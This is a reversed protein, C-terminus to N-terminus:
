RKAPGVTGGPVYKAQFIVQRKDPRGKAVGDVWRAIRAIYDREPGEFHDLSPRRLAFVPDNDMYILSVHGPVQLERRALFSIVAACYDAQVVLLATPPTVRFLSDLCSELGEASDEFHPLHYNATAIGRAELFSLYSKLSPVPTPRRLLSGALMVIRRHGQKVLTDVASNIAPAMRTASCAVPFEEFRGGLAFVPFAQAAFWEMVGGSALCVIWADAAVAKVARSIRSVKDGMEMLCRDSFACTHGAMEIAHRVGLLVKVSMADDKELPTHLMIGIRLSRRASQEMRVGVIRRRRGAGSDEIWGEEELVKLAARLVDKSVMLEEALPVVGPLQGAWRGSQLGERLHV